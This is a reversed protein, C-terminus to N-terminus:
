LLCYRKIFDKWGFWISQDSLEGESENQGSHMLEEDTPDDNTLYNKLLGGISVSKLKHLQQTVAYLWDADSVLDDPKVSYKLTECLAIAIQKKLDVEQAGVKRYKVTRIHVTPLYDVRLAQQWLERWRQQKIYGHTFYSPRVMILVHFHPHANGFEEDKQPKTVEMAKVWGVAPFEKRKTLRTFAENMSQITKRLERVSPNRVTLTLFVFRADPHDEMLKPVHKLFRGRWAMQKRWQCVPCHRVRCFRTQDLKLRKEGDKLAEWRFGLNLSCAAMRRAYSDYQGLEYLKQVVSASARHIDWPKDQPSIDTLHVYSGDLDSPM